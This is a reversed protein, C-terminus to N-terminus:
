SIEFLFYHSLSQSLSLRLPHTSVRSFLNVCETLSLDSQLFLLWLRTKGRKLNTTIELKDHNSGLKGPGFYSSAVM